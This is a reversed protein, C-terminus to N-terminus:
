TSIDVLTLFLTYHLQLAQSPLSTLPLVLFLCSSNFLFRTELMESNMEEKDREYSKKLLRSPSRSCKEGSIGEDM